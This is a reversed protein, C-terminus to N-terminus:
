GRKRWKHCFAELSKVTKHTKLLIIVLSSCGWRSTRQSVPLPDALIFCNITLHRRVNRGFVERDVWPKRGWCDPRSYALVIPLNNFCIGDLFTTRLVGPWNSKVGAFEAILRKRTRQGFDAREKPTEVLSM